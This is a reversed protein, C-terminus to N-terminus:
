RSRGTLSAENVVAAGRLLICDCPVIDDRSTLNNSSDDDKDEKDKEEKEGAAVLSEEKKDEIKKNTGVPTPSNTRKKFALSILDGPLLDKTTIMIWKKLRYAYIPTPPPAMGGLMKQTRTRQFVTTTEFIVVSALSWMTYSWYEDLLWLLACFVQFMALPSLLQVQLLELFSPTYVALHNKGWKELIKTVDSESTIGNAQTYHSLPLDMPCQSLSFVGNPFDKGSAGLKSSPTYLYKQRQFEIQLVSTTPSKVIMVMLPKGRNAPPTVLVWSGEEVKVAPSYLTSAKFSVIWHCLLYFLAHVTISAFLALCAWASPLYSPPLSVPGTPSRENFQKQWKDFDAKAKKQEKSPGFWGSFFGPPNKVEFKKLKNLNDTGNTQFNTSVDDNEDFVNKMENKNDNIIPFNQGTIDVDVAEKNETIIGDYDIGNSVTNNTNNQSLDPGLLAEATWKEDALFIFIYV